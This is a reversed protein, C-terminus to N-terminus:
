PSDWRWFSSSSPLLNEGLAKPPLAARGAGQNFVEPRWVAPSWVETTKDCTAPEQGKTCETEAGVLQGWVGPLLGQRGAAGWTQFGWGRGKPM